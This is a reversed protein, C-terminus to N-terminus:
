YERLMTQVLVVPRLIGNLIWRVILVADEM